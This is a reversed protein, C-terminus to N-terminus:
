NQNVTYTNGEKNITLIQRETDTAFIKGTYTKLKSGSVFVTFDADTRAKFVNYRINYDGNIFFRQIRGEEFRDPSNSLAVTDAGQLIIMDVDVDELAQTSSSGTSWELTIDLGNESIIENENRDNDDKKCSSFLVLVSFVIALYKM